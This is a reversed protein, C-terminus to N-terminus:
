IKQLCHNPMRLVFSTHPSNKDLVLDGAHDRMIKRSLSLGMGTGKGAGKTTYFPEFLRKQVNEPIGKGGDTFTLFTDNLDQHFSVNIWKDNSDAEQLADVSNSMLNLFVRFVETCNGHFLFNQVKPDISVQFQSLRHELMAMAEDFLTQLREQFDEKGSENRAFLRVSKTLKSIKKVSFSIKELSEHLVPENPYLKKIRFIHGEILTLPNNMDHVIGAFLEGLTVLKETFQVQNKLGELETVDVGTIIAEDNELLTGILLFIKEHNTIKSEIRKVLSRQSGHFLDYGFEFIMKDNSHFGVFKGVFDQPELDCMHALAANVGVYTLDKKIWSITNPIVDIVPRLHNLEQDKSLLLQDLQQLFSQCNQSEFQEKENSNLSSYYQNFIKQLEPHNIKNMAM